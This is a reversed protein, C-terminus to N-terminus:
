HNNNGHIRKRHTNILNMLQDTEKPSLNIEAENLKPNEINLCQFRIIPKGNNESTYVIEPIFKYERDDSEWDKIKGM